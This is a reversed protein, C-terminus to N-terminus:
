GGNLESSSVESADRDVWLISGGFARLEKEGTIPQGRWDSGKVLYQPRYEGVLRMLGIEDDFSVVLDVCRLERLITVRDPLGIVPKGPGKLEFVSRDSNIAVVLQTGRRRAIKLLKVHGPTLGDFTGNVMVLGPTFMFKELPIGSLPEATEVLKQRREEANKRHESM